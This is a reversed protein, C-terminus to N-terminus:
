IWKKILHLQLHKLANGSPLAEVTDCAAHLPEDKYSHFKVLEVSAVKGSPKLDLVEYHGPLFPEM